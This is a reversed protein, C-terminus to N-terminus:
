KWEKLEQRTLYLLKKDCAALMEKLEKKLDEISSGFCLGSLHNVFPAIEGDYHGKNQYVDEIRYNFGDGSNGSVIVRYNSV